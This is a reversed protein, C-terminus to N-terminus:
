ITDDGRAFAHRVKGSLSVFAFGRCTTGDDIASCKFIFQLLNKHVEHPHIESLKWHEIKAAEERLWSAMSDNDELLKEYDGLPAINKFQLSMEESHSQVYDCIAQQLDAIKIGMKEQLIADVEEIKFEDKLGLDEFKEIM